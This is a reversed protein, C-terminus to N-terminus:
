FSVSKNVYARWKQVDTALAQVLALSGCIRTAEGFVFPIWEKCPRGVRRVYQETAPRLIHGPALSAARLPHGEPSRLVRGLMLLQRKLFLGTALTHGSLRLVENNSVRSVFSPKIGIINLLCRNQFGM